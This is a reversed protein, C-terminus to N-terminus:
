LLIFMLGPKTLPSILVVKTYVSRTFTNTNRLIQLLNGIYIHITSIKVVAM